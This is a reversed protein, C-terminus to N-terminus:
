NVSITYTGTQWPRVRIVYTGDAPLTVTLLADHGNSGGGSDDDLGLENGGPDYVSVEPDMNDSGRVSVTISQGASGAFMWSHADFAGDLTQTQSQGLSINGTYTTTHMDDIEAASGATPLNYSDMNFTLQDKLFLAYTMGLIVCLLILLLGGILWGSVGKEEGEVAEEPASRDRKKRRRGRKPEPEEVPKEYLAERWDEGPLGADEEEGVPTEEVTGARADAWDDEDSISPLAEMPTPHTRNQSSAQTPADSSMLPPFASLGEHPEETKMLPPLGFDDAPPESRMFDPLGSDAAGESRMLPPLGSDEAPPTARMFDPLGSDKAPPESRMFDPLGSEDVPPASRMFDPLGSDEAPPESRMLPPL